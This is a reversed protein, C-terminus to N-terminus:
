SNLQEVTSAGAPAACFKAGEPRVFPEFRDLCHGNVM